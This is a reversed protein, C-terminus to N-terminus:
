IDKIFKDYIDKLFEYGRQAYINCIKRAIDKNNEQCLFEVLSQIHEKKFDPTYNNLMILFIEGIYKASEIDDDKLENLYEILFPSTFNINVYAASLMLWESNEKDIKPLFITLKAVDSLIKKDNENLSEKGKYKRYLWRWFEIIGQLIDEDTKEQGRIYNRQLWFFGIIDEIQDYSFKDLIQKFLSVEESISERKRLYGVAIHQVLRENDRKEKFNYDIGYQYHSRMLNYLNDYVRGVSLYGDMFAEWYKTGRENELFKIKSEVWEKDLFYFNPLYRGLCTYGEIIKSNLIEEYKDKFKTSWKTDSKIGKKDNVCAIRLTFFIFATIAKGIATNLTYTLYDTIEKNDEPKLKELLLFIIKEAKEFYYEAFGLSDDKTGVQILESVIGTIWDHNAKWGDDDIIFKDQWFEDRNIYGEIFNLLNNWNINKRENLANKIERLIHYVYIFGNNMFPKLNETFKEPNEKAIEGLLEALGDATPGDWFDKTKFKELFDALKDNPMKIIEEKTLPSPGPGWRTEVERVAPHLEADVKTIKKMEDYLNKFYTDHSLAAYIKQKYFAISREPDEKFDYRKVSDDIKENLLKRQEDTMNKINKLLHKLEDGFYLTNAIISEGIDTALIEWFLERYKDLNQGLVYIAIKPFFFYKDKFFKKLFERTTTVDNKAKSLLVSKLIFTFLELPENLYYEKIDYFSYFTGDVEKILLRKIIRTLNEIVNSSCKSGIIEAYKKFVEVLWYSDILFKAEEKKDLLKAREESLSIIKIETIYEIIKEAKKIDEESETLFKPLLKTVIEAGQLTTDFKSDLWIPILDIINMPIKDNPINCLIKVFYYWTHYNDLAKNNNKHYVTVEQIINLLEDIYQVNTSINIQQSVKELYELVNWHPIIFYGEEDATKPFPAKEPLFYGKDKLSKFWEIHELRRFFYQKRVENRLLNELTGLIEETPRKVKLLNDVLETIRIYDGVLQNLIKEFRKWLDDFIDKDRPIKWAGHRHAYKHFKKAVGHWEKVFKDNKDLGLLYCIEDIHRTTRKISGCQPCRQVNKKNSSFIDRIGGEIERAIHALLYPKSTFDSKFIRIGDYYLSAIEEGIEKLGNYIGLQYEDLLSARNINEFIYNSM